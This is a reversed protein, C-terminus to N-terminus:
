NVTVAWWTTMEKMAEFGRCDIAYVPTAIVPLLKVTGKMMEMRVIRAMGNSSIVSVFASFLEGEETLLSRKWVM